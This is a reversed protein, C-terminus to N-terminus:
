IDNDRSTSQDHCSDEDGNDSSISGRRSDESVQSDPPVLAIDVDGDGDVECRSPMSPFHTVNISAMIKSTDSYTDDADCDADAFPLVDALDINSGACPRSLLHSPHPPGPGPASVPDPEFSTLAIPSVPSPFLCDIEAGM